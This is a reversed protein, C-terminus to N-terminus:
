VAFEIRRADYSLGVTANMREYIDFNELLNLITSHDRGGIFHGIRPYSMGRARLLRAIVARAHILPRHRGRGVIEAFPLGFDTAVAMVIQSPLVGRRGPPRYWTPWPKTAAYSM